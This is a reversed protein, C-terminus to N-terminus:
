SGRATAGITPLRSATLGHAEAVSQNCLLGGITNVGAALGPKTDLARPL